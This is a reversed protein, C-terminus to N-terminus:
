IQWPIEKGFLQTGFGFVITLICHQTKRHEDKPSLNSLLNYPWYLTADRNVVSWLIHEHADNGDAAFVRADAGEDILHMLPPQTASNAVMEVIMKVM